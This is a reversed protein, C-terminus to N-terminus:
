EKMCVDESSIVLSAFSSMATAMNQERAVWVEEEEVWEEVDGWANRLPGMGGVVVLRGGMNAMGFWTRAVSMEGTERAERTELDLVTTTSLLTFFPSVGGAIIVKDGLRACAHGWRSTYLSPWEMWAGESYEAVRTGPIISDTGGGILLLNTESLLVSCVGYYSTKDFVGPLPPGAQWETSGTPLVSTTLQKFGGMVMLGLSPLTIATAMVRPRDLTSHPLWEGAEPDLVVCTMDDTGIPSEGGCTLILNDATRALIHNSRATSNTCVAPCPNTYATGCPSCTVPHSPSTTNVPLAPCPISPCPGAPLPLSPVPCSSDLLECGDRAPSSIPLEPIFPM